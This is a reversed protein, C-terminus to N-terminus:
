SIKHMLCYNEDSGTFEFGFKQYFRIAAINNKHVELKLLAYNAKALALIMLKSAIGRGRHSITISMNSIFYSNDESNHYMALLGILCDDEWAEIRIAKMFLKEAYSNLDVRMKLDNLFNQDCLELHSLIIKMSATNNKFMSHSTLIAAGFGHRGFENGNYLLYVSGDTEFLHPYCMMNSDWMSDSSKELNLARDDRHWNKLDASYAYGLRYSKTHDNRFGFVDRYCFVMHYLGGFFLISPLAQCENENLVNPLISKYDRIWNLGDNSIAHGIKYVRDPSSELTESVWKQGFM